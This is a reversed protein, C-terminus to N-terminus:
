GAVSLLLGSEGSNSWIVMNINRIGWGYRDSEGPAAQHLYCAPICLMSKLM